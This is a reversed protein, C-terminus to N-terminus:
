TSDNAPTGSSKARGVCPVDSFRRFSTYHKQQIGIGTDVCQLLITVNEPLEEGFRSIFDEDTHDRFALKSRTRGLTGRWRLSEPEDLIKKAWEGNEFERRL